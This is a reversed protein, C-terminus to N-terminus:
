NLISHNSKFLVMLDVDMVEDSIKHIRLKDIKNNVMSKKQIREEILQFIRQVQNEIFNYFKLLFLIFVSILLTELNVM